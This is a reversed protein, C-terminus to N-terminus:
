IQSCWAAWREKTEYPAAERESLEAAVPVADGFAAADCVSDEEGNTAGPVADAPRPRKM